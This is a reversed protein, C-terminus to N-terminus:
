TGRETAPAGGASRSFHLWRPSPMPTDGATRPGRPVMLSTVDESGEGAESGSSVRAFGASIARKVGARAVNGVVMLRGEDYQPNAKLWELRYADVADFSQTSTMIHQDRSFHVMTLATGTVGDGVRRLNSGVVM